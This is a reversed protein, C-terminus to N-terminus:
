KHNNPQTSKHVYKQSKRLWSMNQALAIEKISNTLEGAAM